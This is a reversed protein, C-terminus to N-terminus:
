IVPLFHGILIKKENGNEYPINLSNSFSNLGNKEM